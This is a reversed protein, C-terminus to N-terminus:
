EINSNLTHDTQMNHFNELYKSIYFQHIENVQHCDRTIARSIVLQVKSINAEVEKFLRREIAPGWVEPLRTVVLTAEGQKDKQVM